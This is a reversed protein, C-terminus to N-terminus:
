ENRSRKCCRRDIGIARCDGATWTRGRCAWWVAVFWASMVRTKIERRTGPLVAEHTVHRCHRVVAAVRRRKVSRTSERSMGSAWLQRARGRIGQRASMSQRGFNAKTAAYKNHGDKLDQATQQESHRFSKEHLLAGTASLRLCRHQQQQQPHRSQLRRSSAMM